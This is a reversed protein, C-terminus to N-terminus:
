EDKVSVRVREMNRFIVKFRVPSKGNVWVRLGLGYGKVCVRFRVMFWFRLFFALGQVKVKVRFGLGRDKIRVRVRM